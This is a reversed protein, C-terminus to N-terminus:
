HYLRLKPLYFLKFNTMQLPFIQLFFYFLVSFSFSFSILIFNYLTHTHACSWGWFLLKDGSFKLLFFLCFYLMWFFFSVYFHHIFLIKLYIYVRLYLSLFTFIHIEFLIFSYLRLSSFLNIFESFFVCVCHFRFDCDTFHPFILM